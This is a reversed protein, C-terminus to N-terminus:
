AAERRLYRYLTRLSISYDDALAQLHAHRGDPRTRFGRVVPYDRLVADARDRIERIEWESLKTPSVTCARGCHTCLHKM